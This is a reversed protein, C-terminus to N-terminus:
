RNVIPLRAQLTTGDRVRVLRVVAIDRVPIPTTIGWSGDVLAFPTLSTSRGARTVIQERYTGAAYPGKVVYFMWSPSGQYGFVSGVARGDRTTLRASAFYQGNADRLTARYQSALRHDDSYAFVMAIATAAAAGVVAAALQLRRARFVTRRPRVRLREVVRAEFGVPPEAQPAFALLDDAVSSLEALEGRCDDCGSLHGLARARDEGDAIGLALEPLLARVEDCVDSPPSM